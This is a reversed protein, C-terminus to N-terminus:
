SEGEETTEEEGGMGAFALHITSNNELTILQEAQAKSCLLTVSAPITGETISEGKSGYVALVELSMLEPVVILGDEDNYGYVSVTDGEEVKGGVSSSLNDMTVAVAYRDNEADAKYLNSDARSTSLKSPLIYDDPYIDTVAYKGIIKDKDTIAGAPAETSLVETLIDETIISGKSVISKTKIVEVGEANKKNQNPILVFAIIASLLVCLGFIVYKSKILEKINKM